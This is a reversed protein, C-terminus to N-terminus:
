LYHKTNKLFDEKKVKEENGIAMNKLLINPSKIHKSSFITLVDWYSTNEDFFPKKDLFNINSLNRTKQRLIVDYRGITLYAKDFEKYEAFKKQIDNISM